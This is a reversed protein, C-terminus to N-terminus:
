NRGSDGNDQRSTWLAQGVDEGTSVPLRLHTQRVINEIEARNIEDRHLLTRQEIEYDATLERALIRNVDGESKPM